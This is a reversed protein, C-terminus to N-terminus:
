LIFREIAEAIGDNNNNAVVADAVALVEPVANGMAIGLGAAKLLPLDNSGDGIAMVAEVPLELNALLKRMGSGKNVGYPVLELMNPVAQMTEANHDVVFRQWDPKLKADVVKPDTMFLLKMVPPGNLIADVSPMVQARPEYYVDSLAQIEPTYRMTVCEDGLFGSLSVNERISYEFAARVISKELYVSPLRLGQKNYTDLGQLFIGPGERSVVLGKGALGVPTLASLAAPRAKGTALCVAVGAKIAAKIAKISSPLVKSNTDLLTGDMDLALLRIDSSWEAHRRGSLSTSAASGRGRNSSVTSSSTSTEETSGPTNGRSQELETGAQQTKEQNRNSASSILGIGKWSLKQMIDHEQQAMSEAETDGLEHDHGLLHLLGHLLLIRCEDQLSHGQEAAQRQATDLSIVVDGLALPSHPILDDWDAAPFSLVDTAFAKGRWEENLETIYPDDCLVVSLEISCSQEPKLTGQEIAQHVMSIGDNQLSSALQAAQRDFSASDGEVM